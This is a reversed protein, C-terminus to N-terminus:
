KGELLAATGQLIFFCRLLETDGKRCADWVDGGSEDVMAQAESKMREEEAGDIEDLAARAKRLRDERKRLRRQRSQTRKEERKQDAEWRAKAEALERNAADSAVVEAPTPDLGAQSMSAALM